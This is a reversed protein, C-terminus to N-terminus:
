FVDIAHKRKFQSLLTSEPKIFMALNNAQDLLMRDNKSISTM